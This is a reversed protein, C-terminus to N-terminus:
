KGRTWDCPPLDIRPQFREQASTAWVMLYGDCCTINMPPTPQDRLERYAQIVENVRLVGPEAVIEGRNIEAERQRAWTEAHAKTQFTKCLGKRRMLARWSVGIKVISAM